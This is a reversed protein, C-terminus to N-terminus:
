RDFGYTFPLGFNVDITAKKGFKFYVCTLSDGCVVNTVKSECNPPENPMNMLKLTNVRKSATSTKTKSKCAKMDFLFLLVIRLVVALINFECILGTKTTLLGLDAGSCTRFDNVIGSRGTRNFDHIKSQDGTITVYIDTGNM